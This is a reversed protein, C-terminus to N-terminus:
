FRRRTTGRNRSRSRSRRVIATGRRVIAKRGAHQMARNLWIKRSRGHFQTVSIHRNMNRKVQKVQKM